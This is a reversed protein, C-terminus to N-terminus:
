IADVQAVRKAHREDGSFPTRLFFDTYQERQKDTMTRAGLCLITANNHERALTATETSYPLAARAGTVKNAAMCMGIGTGCILIGFAHEAVAKQAVAKAILPYDCSEETHTGLDEVEHGQDQLHQTLQQKAQFGAHDSGIIVRM